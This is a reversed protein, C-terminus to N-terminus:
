RAREGFRAPVAVKRLIGVVVRRLLALAEDLAPDGLDLVLEGSRLHDVGGRDGVGAPMDHEARCDVELIGRGALAEGVLDDAVVLGIELM